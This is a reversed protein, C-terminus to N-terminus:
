TGVLNKRLRAYTYCRRPLSAAGVQHENLGKASPLLEKREEMFRKGPGTLTVRFGSGIFEATQCPKRPPASPTANVTPPNHNIIEAFGMTDM